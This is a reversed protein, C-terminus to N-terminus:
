RLYKPLRQYLESYVLAEAAPTWHRNEFIRYAGRTGAGSAFVLEWSEPNEAVVSELLQDHPYRRGSGSSSLICYKVPIRRFLAEVEESSRYYPKWNTGNWDEEGFLKTPRLFIRKPRVRESQAFEAIWTGESGSPVLVAGPSAGDRAQVFAVAPRIQNLPLRSLSMWNWAGLVIAAAITVAARWRPNGLAGCLEAALFIVSIYAVMLLRPQVPVRAFFIALSIAPLVALMCGAAASMKPGKRYLLWAGGIFAAPLLFSTQQWLTAIYEWQSTWFGPLQLGYTGLLLFPRSVLLWPGYIAATMAAALWLGPRRLLDWRRMGAIVVPPVLVVFFTSNKTLLSIGCFFGFLAADRWRGREVFRAFCLIAALAFLSCTLDAMVLCVSWQVVPIFLFIASAAMAAWGGLFGRLMSFLLTALAAASAAIMWLVAARGDGFLTMWSGELLYFFPPWVGLAFFPLHIHYDRVFNVPDTGFSHLLYDKAM